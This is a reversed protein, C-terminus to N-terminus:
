ILLYNDKIEPSPCANTFSYSVGESLAGKNFHHVKKNQVPIPNESDNVM